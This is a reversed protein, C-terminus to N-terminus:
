LDEAPVVNGGRMGLHALVLVLGAVHRDKDLAGARTQPGKGVRLGLRAASGELRRISFPTQRPAPAKENAPEKRRAVQTWRAAFDLLIEAANRILVNRRYPGGM